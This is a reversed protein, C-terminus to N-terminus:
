NKIKDRLCFWGILGPLAFGIANLSGHVAYMWPISLFSLPFYYRWGYGLALVMGAMLALGSLMLLYRSNKNMRLASLIHMGGVAFAAGALITVCATEIAPPLFFHSTTIGIAVLPVGTIVGTGVINSFKKHFDPLVLGTLLPLIYGAYHFHAVTLLTIISDFGLPQFDMRDALAWAAGVPLFVAAALFNLRVIFSDVPQIEDTDIPIKRYYNFNWKQCQSVAMWITWVLWPLALVVALLSKDLLFSGVLSYGALAGILLVRKAYGMLFGALPLLFTPVALILMQVYDMQFVSFPYKFMVFILWIFLGFVALILADKRLIRNNM